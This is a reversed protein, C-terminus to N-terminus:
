GDILGHVDGGAAINLEAAVLQATMNFLPDSAMKVGGKMTSKNLLNVAYGCQGATLYFKGVKIGPPTAAALTQDLVPKKNGSSNACSAWNKWFGITLARGGPPPSNDITFPLTQGATVTFDVCVISNDVNPNVAVGDPPMFSNPVFATSLSTLWGPMVIECLQYHNGPVLPTIFNLTGGNASSAVLTEDTNGIMTTSAGDRLQFTFSQTSSPPLGRVTKIVQAKGYKTNHFTCSFTTGDNLIADVKFACVKTNVNDNPAASDERWGTKLTETVTYNGDSLLCDGGLQDTFFCFPAGAGAISPVCTGVNPGSLTFTWSYDPDNSLLVPDTIKRVKARM